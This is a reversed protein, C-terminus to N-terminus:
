LSYCGNSLVFLGIIRNIIKNMIILKFVHSNNKIGGYSVKGYDTGGLYESVAKEVEVTNTDYETSQIRFVVLGQLM